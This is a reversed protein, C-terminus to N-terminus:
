GPSSLASAVAANIARHLELNRTRDSAAVIVQVGRRDRWGVLAAELGAHTAVTTVGIGHAEALARLDVGHPTGFLREFRQPDLEEAQPLFSFIGGGDNNIVVIALDVGRRVLGLQANSDHLFALDGVLAVVPVGSLAVGVATSVVGDIGNAGRNAVVRVDGRGPAFWDLDRIPMSSSVVLTGGTPVAALAARAAGPETLEPSASLTAEVSRSATLALESWRQLWGDPRPHARREVAGRLARAALAIDAHQQEAVVGEPDAVRGHRDIGIQTAGSRALWEYLVRSAVLGGFRIVAEPLLEEAVSPVRLIPDFTGIAGDSIARCGSLHDALVPWGLSAALEAVASVDEPSRAAGAGAVIVGRRGEIATVIRAVHEDLVAWPPPQTRDHEPLPEDLPGPSGVLPERFALNLHVPGPVIGLTAIYSDAALHRWGGRNRPDPPGPEVFWRVSRGFLDRQDITQPAGTGRLEPPRDATVVLLPVASMDAEVVAPHLEVAATGSTTLIVSPRNTARGLGLGIFGASREDHCMEVDLGRHDALAVALPTSRSGPCVIAQRM